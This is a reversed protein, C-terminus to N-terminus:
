EMVVRGDAFATIKQHKAERAKVYDLMMDRMTVESMVVDTAMAGIYLQDGGTLLFDVTTMNYIKKPNVPKGGVTFEKLAHDKVKVRVGSVPQFAETKALQEMLRTLEEGTIKVYAIVNDFPFMAHIDGLTVPGQPMPIRIGGYNCIAVDMKVGFERTGRERMIDAMLNGLPLDCQNRPNDYQGASHAIVEKYKAMGPECDKLLQVAAATASTDAFVRKSRSGDMKVKHWTIDREASQPRPPVSYYIMLFLATILAAVLFYFFYKRM